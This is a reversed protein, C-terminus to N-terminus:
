ECPEFAHVRARKSDSDELFPSAARTGCEFTGTESLFSQTEIPAASSSLGMMDNGRQQHEDEQLETDPESSIPESGVALCLEYYWAPDRSLITPRIPKRVIPSGPLSIAHSGSADRAVDEQALPKSDSHRSNLDRLRSPPTGVPSANRSLSTPDAFMHIETVSKSLDHLTTRPTSCVSSPLSASPLSENSEMADGVLPLNSSTSRLPDALLRDISLPKRGDGRMPWLHNIRSVTGAQSGQLAVETTDTVPSMSDPNLGARTSASHRNRDPPRPANSDITHGITSDTDAIFPQSDQGTPSNPISIRVNADEMEEIDLKEHTEIEAVDIPLSSTPTTSGISETMEMDNTQRDPSSNNQDSESSAVLSSQAPVMLANSPRPMKDIEDMQVEESDVSIADIMASDPSQEELEVSMNEQVEQTRDENDNPEEVVPLHQKMKGKDSTNHDVSCLLGERAQPTSEPFGTIDCSERLAPSLSVHADVFPDSVKTVKASRLHEAQRQNAQHHAPGPEAESRPRVILRIRKIPPRDLRDGSRKQSTHRDLGSSPEAGAASTLPSTISMDYVLRLRRFPTKGSSPLINDTGPTGIAKTAPTTQVDEFRAHTAKLAPPTHVHHLTKPVSKPAPTVCPTRVDDFAQSIAEPPPSARVDDVAALKAKAPIALVDVFTAVTGAATMPSPSCPASEIPPLLASSTANEPVKHQVPSTNCTNSERTMNLATEKIPISRTRTPTVTETSRQRVEIRPSDWFPNDDVSGRHTNTRRHPTHYPNYRSGRPSNTPVIIKTRGLVGKGSAPSDTRLPIETVKFAKPPTVSENRAPTTAHAFLGPIASVTTPSPAPASTRTKKASPTEPLPLPGTARLDEALTSQSVTPLPAPLPASLDNLKQIETRPHAPPAPISRSTKPPIPSQTPEANDMAPSRRVSALTKVPVSAGLPVPPVKAAAATHGPADTGQPNSESTGTVHLKEPTSISTREKPVEMQYPIKASTESSSEKRPRVIKALLNDLDQFNAQSLWAKHVKSHVHESFLDYKVNCNECYGPRNYFAKGAIRHDRRIIPKKAPINKRPKEKLTKTQNVALERAGMRLVTANKQAAPKMPLAASMSVLGSAASVGHFPPKPNEKENNESQSSPILPDLRLPVPLQPGDADEDGGQSTIPSESETSPYRAFACRGPRDKFSILPWPPDAPDKPERYEKVLIPKYMEAMDEVLLYRGEFVRFNIKQHETDRTTSVGYIREDRLHDQLKRPAAVGNIAKLISQLRELPWVHAGFKRAITINDEILRSRGPAFLSGKKARAPSLPKASDGAKKEANRLQQVPKTTPGRSPTKAITKYSNLDPPIPKTTILHTINKNLFLEVTGGLDKVQKSVQSTVKSDYCDFFFKFTKIKQKTQAIVTARDARAAPKAAHAAAAGAATQSNSPAKRKSPTQPTAFVGVRPQNQSLAAQGSKTITPTAPTGSNNERLFDPRYPVPTANFTEISTSKKKTSSQQGGSKLLPTSVPQRDCAVRTPTNTSGLVTKTKAPVSSVFPHSSSGRGSVSSAYGFPRTFTVPTKQLEVLKRPTPIAPSECDHNINRLISGAPAPTSAATLRAKFSVPDNGSDQRSGMEAETGGM